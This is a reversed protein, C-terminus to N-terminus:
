SSPLNQRRRRTPGTATATEDLISDPSSAPHGLKLRCLSLIYKSFDHQSLLHPISEQLSNCLVGEFLIKFAKIKYIRNTLTEESVLNKKLMSHFVMFLQELVTCPAM